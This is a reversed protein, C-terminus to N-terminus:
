VYRDIIVCGAWIRWRPTLTALFDCNGDTELLRRLRVSESRASSHIGLGQGMRIAVGALNWCAGTLETTCQLYVALLLLAQVFQLRPRNFIDLDLELLAKSRLWFLHSRSAVSAIPGSNDCHCGLAMMINLLIHFRRSEPIKDPQRSTSQAPYPTDSYEYSQNPSETSDACWIEKYQRDFEAQDIFPYLPHVNAWFSRLFIDAEKRPPIM